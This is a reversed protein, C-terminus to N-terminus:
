DSPEEEKIGEILAGLRENNKRLDEATKGLGSTTERLEGIDDRIRDETNRDNSVKKRGVFGLFFSIIITVFSIAVASCTKKIINWVNKLKEKNM